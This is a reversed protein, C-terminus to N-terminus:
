NGKKLKRLLDQFLKMDSKEDFFFADDITEVAKVAEKLLSLGSSTNCIANARSDSKSQVRQTLGKKELLRLTSSTTMPDIM